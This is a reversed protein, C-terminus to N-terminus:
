PISEFLNLIRQTCVTDSMNDLVWQRPYFYDFCCPMAKILGELEDLDRWDIGTASSLYPCYSVLSYKRGFLIAKKTDYVLTPINMSWAEAFAIGQTETAGLFIAYCSNDLAEKYSNHTFDGYIIKLPNWNYQIVLKEVNKILEQTANKIYILVNKQFLRESLTKQPNWFSTDIGSPCIAIHSALLPEEEIFAVKLWLSNVLYMDIEPSAAIHNYQNSRDILNPGAILKKIKGSKKLAIAQQLRQIDSLVIVNKTIDNVSSPNHIYPIKLSNLGRILSLVVSHPGCINSTLPHSFITIKEVPLTTYFLLCAIVITILRFNM